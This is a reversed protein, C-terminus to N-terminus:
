SDTSFSKPPFNWARKEGHNYSIMTGPGQSNIIGVVIKSADSLLLHAITRRKLGTKLEKM